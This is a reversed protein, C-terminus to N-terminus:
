CEPVIEVCFESEGTECLILEVVLKDNAIDPCDYYHTPDDGDLEDFHPMLGAILDAVNEHFSNGFEENPMQEYWAVVAKLRTHKDLALGVTRNIEM